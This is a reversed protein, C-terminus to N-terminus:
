DIESRPRRPAIIAMSATFGHLFNKGGVPGLEGNCFFGAVALPGLLETVTNVDHGSEGFLNIGRGNCCCLMVGVPQKEGMEAKAQGLLLKLEEDAAEADRLQFQITQGERPLANVIITGNRQDIGMLQRVLFDGRSFEDQYENMALGIMLNTSARRQLEPSLSHYTESLVEFAPRMGIKYIVNEHVDTITWAQGIPQCGQSVVTSVAYEGGIALAVAGSDYVRDNLFVHISQEGSALGGIIPTGPFVGSFAHLLRNADFTYPDAFALWASVASPEIQAEDAWMKTVAAESVDAEILRFPRLVAGPLSFTQLAISPEHEIEAGPGIIGQGSCGILVEAHTLSRVEALLEHYHNAYASHTFLFALHIDSGDSLMPMQGAIEALVKRWEYGAAVAAEARM